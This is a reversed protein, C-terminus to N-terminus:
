SPQLWKLRYGSCFSRNCKIQVVSFEFLQEDFAMTHNIAHQEHHEDSQDTAQDDQRMQVPVITETVNVMVRVGSREPNENQDRKYEEIRACDVQDGGTEDHQAVVKLNAKLPDLLACLIQSLGLQADFFSLIQEIAQQALVDTNTLLQVIVVAEPASIQQPAVEGKWAHSKVAKILSKEHLM